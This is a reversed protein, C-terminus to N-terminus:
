PQALIGSATGIKSPEMSADYLVSRNRGSNKGRYLAVDARKVLSETSDGAQAVALGLTATVSISKSGFRCRREEIRKRVREALILARDGDTASLLLLFEEGGWRALIDNTRVSAGIEGVIEKLIFDGFDHGHEDNVKKFFDIDIMALSFLEGTRGHRSLEEAVRREMYRRNHIGTLDDTDSLRELEIQRRATTISVSILYYTFFILAISLAIPIISVAEFERVGYYALLAFSLIPFLTFSPRQSDIIGIIGRVPKRLYRVALPLAALEALLGLMVCLQPIPPSILRDLYLSLLYIFQTASYNMFFVFIKARITEKFILVCPVLYFCGLLYRAIPYAEFVRGILYPFFAAAATMLFVAAQFSRSRRPTLFIYLLLINEVLYLAGTVLLSLPHITDTV